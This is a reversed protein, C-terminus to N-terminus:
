LLLYSLVCHSCNVNNIEQLLREQKKNKREIDKNEARLQGLKETAKVLELGAENSRREIEGYERRAEHLKNNADDYREVTDRAQFSKM